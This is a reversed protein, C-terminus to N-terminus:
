PNASAVTCRILLINDAISIKDVYGAVTIKQGKELPPPPVRFMCMAKGKTNVAAPSYKEDLSVVTAAGDAIAVVHGTVLVPTKGLETKGKRDLRSVQRNLESLGIPRAQIPDAADPLKPGCAAASLSLLIVATLLGVNRGIQAVSM